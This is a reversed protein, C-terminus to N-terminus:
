TLEKYIKSLLRKNFMDNASLKEWEIYQRKMENIIEKM